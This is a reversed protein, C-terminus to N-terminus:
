KDVLKKLFAALLTGVQNNESAKAWLSVEGLEPHKDTEDLIKGQYEADGQGEISRGRALQRQTAPASLKAMEEPSLRITFPLIDVRGIKLGVRNLLKGEDTGDVTYKILEEHIQQSINQYIQHRTGHLDHTNNKHEESESDWIDKPVNGIIRDLTVVSSMVKTTVNKLAQDLLLNWSDTKFLADFERGKQICVQVSGMVDFPVTDVMVGAIQFLWTSFETRLHDTRYGKTNVPVDKYIVKGGVEDSRRHPLESTYLTQIFPLGPVRLGFIFAFVEFLRWPLLLVNKYIPLVGPTWLTPSEDGRMPGIYRGGRMKIKTRNPEIQTFIAFKKPNDPDIMLRAKFFLSIFLLVYGGIIIGIPIGVLIRLISFIANMKELVSVKLEEIQTSPNSVETQDTSEVKNNFPFLSSIKSSFEFDGHQHLYYGGGVTVILFLFFIISKM